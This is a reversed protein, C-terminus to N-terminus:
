FISVVAWQRAKIIYSPIGLVSLVEAKICACHERVNMMGVLVGGYKTRINTSKINGHFLFTTMKQLMGLMGDNGVVSKESRTNLRIVDYKDYRPLLRPKCLLIM